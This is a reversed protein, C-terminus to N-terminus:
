SVWTYSGASPDLARVSFVDSTGVARYEFEIRVVTKDNVPTWTARLGPRQVGGSSAITVNAISLGQLTDLPPGGPALDVVQNDDLEDTAATWDDFGADNERLLVEVTSNRNVTVTEVQFVKSVWGRRTSNFTIWDGPEIVSMGARLTCKAILPRRARKRTIEQIRQAQTRSTVYKLDITTPYRVGGDATEDASSTRPPLAVAQYQAAPDSFSGFVANVLDSRSRKPTIEFPEGVIVDDDTVTIVPTQAVGAFMRYIGGSEIVEGAMAQLMDALIEKNTRATDVVAGIRYRKESGGAKLAVLEDCANMAASAEAFRVAEEPANLGTLLQGNVGYGRLFHYIAVAANDSWEWTSPDNFRHAGSGGATTDKRPDYLKAGQVEFLFSPVGSPFDEETYTMTVIAYCVNLGQESSTWRGGSNAILAADAAQSATGLAFRINLNNNYSAVDGNGAITVQQGDVFVRSVAECEHDALAIVMELRENDAGSLHWYVLSGATAATGFIIKRSVNPDVQLNIQAGIERATESAEVRGRPELKRALFSLGFSAGLSVAGSLLSGGVTGVLGPAILPVLFGM